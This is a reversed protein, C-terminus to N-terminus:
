RRSVWEWPPIYTTPFINTTHDLQGGVITARGPYSELFGPMVIGSVDLDPYVVDEWACVYQYLVDNVLGGFAVKAINRPSSM